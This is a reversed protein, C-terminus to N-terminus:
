QYYIRTYLTGTLHAGGGSNDMTYTITDNTITIQFIVYTSMFYGFDYLGTSTHYSFDNVYTRMKPIYGLGHTIVLSTNAIPVDFTYTSDLFIKQYNTFSSFNRQQTVTQPTIDGQGPMAFLVVKYMFTYASATYNVGNSTRNWNDAYLTLAGASSVGYMFQTQLNAFTGLLVSKNGNFDVWSTGGDTSFVGQFFTKESISTPIVVSTTTKDPFLTTATAPSSLSGTFTGLILDTPISSAFAVDAVNDLLSM